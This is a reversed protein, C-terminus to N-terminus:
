RMTAVNSNDAILALINRYSFIHGCIVETCQYREPYLESAAEWRRITADAGASILEGTHKPNQVVVEVWDTHSYLTSYPGHANFKWIVLQRKDTTAVVEGSQPYSFLKLLKTDAPLDAHHEPDVQYKFETANLFDRSDFVMPMNHNVTVWFSHTSPIYVIGTPSDTLNHVTHQPKFTDINWVKIRRDFSGTIVRNSDSDYGVATVAADHVKKVTQHRRYRPEDLDYVQAAHDYGLTCFRGAETCVIHRVFDDHDCIDQLVSMVGERQLDLNYTDIKYVRVFRNGGALLHDYKENYTLTYVPGSLNERQLNDGKGTWLIISNDMSCSFLSKNSTVYIIGSVTGKHNKDKDGNLLRLFKGTESDWVQKKM